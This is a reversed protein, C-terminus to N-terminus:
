KIKTFVRGLLVLIRQPLLDFITVCTATWSGNMGKKPELNWGLKLNEVVKYAQSHPLVDLGIEVYLLGIANISLLDVCCWMDGAWAEWEATGTWGHGMRADEGVGMSWKQVVGEVAGDVVLATRGPSAARATPSGCAEDYTVVALEFAIIM